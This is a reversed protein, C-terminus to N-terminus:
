IFYSPLDLVYTSITGDRHKAVLLDIITYVTFRQSQVLSRMKVHSFLRRPVKSDKETM